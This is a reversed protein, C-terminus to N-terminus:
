EKPDSSTKACVSIELGDEPATFYLVLAPRGEPRYEIAGQWYDRRGRGKRRGFWAFDDAGWGDVELGFRDVSPMVRLRGHLTLSTAPIDVAYGEGAGIRFRVCAEVTGLARLQPFLDPAASSLPQWDSM